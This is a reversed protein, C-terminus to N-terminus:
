VEKLRNFNNTVIESSQQDDPNIEAWRIDGKLVATKIKKQIDTLKSNGTKIEVLYIIIDDKKDSNGDFVILDIPSGVFRADKPNFPFNIHFPILHETIKGLNVSYSRNIADQRISAENEIKWKQLLVSAAQFANEEIVKQVRAIETNKFKDFEALAWNQYAVKLEAEKRQFLLEQEKIEAEKKQFLLEHEKLKDIHEKLRKKLDRNESLYTWIVIIILIVLFIIWGETLIIELLIIKYFHFAFLNVIVCIIEFM